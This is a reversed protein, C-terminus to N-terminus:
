IVRDLDGDGWTYYWRSADFISPERSTTALVQFPKRERPLLGAWRLESTFPGRENLQVILSRAGSAAMAAHLCRGYDAEPALLEVLAARHDRRELVCAGIPQRESMIIFARQASSPGHAFRWTFFTADRIPMVHSSDVAREFIADIRRDRDTIPELRTHRGAAFWSVPRLVDHLPAPRVYRRVYTIVRSGVRELARLNRLEPPGFMLDVGENRMRELLAEHMATAVGRRRAAPRVYADGGIAGLLERGGALLRRPFVSALGLADHTRTDYAIVTLARGHPNQEYLWEVRAAVNTKPMHEALLGLVDNRNTASAHEVRFPLADVLQFAQL